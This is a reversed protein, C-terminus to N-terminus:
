VTEGKLHKEFLPTWYNKVIEDWNMIPWAPKEKKTETYGNFFKKYDIYEGVTNKLAGIKNVVPICGCFRSKVANLCFLESDPNNLPMIWYQARHYEQELENKNLQGLYTIGAQKMKHLINNKIQRSAPGGMKELNSFGYAIRLELKQHHANRISQWDTLLQTLGRDPSSCYLITGPQKEVKNQVLSEADIGHPIVVCKEKPVFIIRSEHYDSICVFADIIKPNWPIEVDSSWHIRVAAENDFTALWPLKNKFTILIDQPNVDVSERNAYQVGNLEYWNNKSKMDASFTHYCRVKYGARVLAESLLVVCEESGGLFEELDNACWGGIVENTFLRIQM